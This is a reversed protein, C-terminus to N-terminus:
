LMNAVNGMNYRIDKCSIKYLIKKRKDGGGSYERGKGWQLGVAQNDVRHHDETRLFSTKYDALSESGGPSLNFGPPPRRVAVAQSGIVMHQPQPLAPAPPLDRPRKAECQVRAPRTPQSQSFVGRWMEDPTTVM